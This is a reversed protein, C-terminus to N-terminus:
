ASYEHFGKGSKRGLHGARVKTRLLRAPRFREGHVQQLEELKAVVVDLGLIDAVALPGVREGGYTMGTGAIVAMDVDNPSAIKEQLCLAAENILPM